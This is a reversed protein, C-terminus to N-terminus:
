IKFQSVYEFFEYMLPKRFKRVKQATEEFSEQKNVYAQQIHIWDEILKNLRTTYKHEKDLSITEELLGEVTLMHKSICDMCTKNKQNLHEELLICQKAAERLNFEPQLIPMLKRNLKAGGLIAQPANINNIKCYKYIIAIVIIIILFLILLDINKSM